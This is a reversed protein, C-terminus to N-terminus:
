AFGCRGHLQLIARWPTPMLCLSCSNAHAKTYLLKQATTGRPGLKITDLHAVQEATGLCFNCSCRKKQPPLLLAALLHVSRVDRM